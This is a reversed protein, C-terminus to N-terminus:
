AREAIRSVVLVEPRPTIWYAKGGPHQGPHQVSVDCRRFPAVWAAEPYEHVKRWCDNYDGAEIEASSHDWDSAPYADLLYAAAQARSDFRVINADSSIVGHDSDLTAFFRKSM